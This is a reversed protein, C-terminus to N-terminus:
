GHERALRGALAILPAYKGEGRRGLKRLFADLRWRLKPRRDQGGIYEEAARRLLERDPYGAVIAELDAAFTGTSTRNWLSRLYGAVEKAILPAVPQGPRFAQELDITVFRDGDVLVHDFTGHEEILGPEPLELAKRHRACWGASFRRLLESRRGRDFLRERLIDGLPPAAVFEMVLVSGSALSPFEASRDRPVPFGHTTFLALGAAEAQRRAKPGCGTKRGALATLFRRPLGYRAGYLKQIVTEAGAKVIWLRNGRLAGPRRTM